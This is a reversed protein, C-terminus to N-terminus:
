FLRVLVHQIMFIIIIFFYNQFYLDMQNLGVFSPLFRFVFSFLDPPQKNAALYFEAFTPFHGRM